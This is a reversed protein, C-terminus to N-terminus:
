RRLMRWRLLRPLPMLRPQGSSPVAVDFCEGRREREGNFLDYAYACCVHVSQGGTAIQGLEVECKEAGDKPIVQFWCRDPRTAIQEHRDEDAFVRIRVDVETLSTEGRSVLTLTLNTAGAKIKAVVLSCTLVSKKEGTEKAKTAIFANRKLVVTLFAILVVVVGFLQALDFGPGLWEWIRIVADRLEVM